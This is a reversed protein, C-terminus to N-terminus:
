KVIMISKNLMIFIRGRYIGHIGKSLSLISLEDNVWVSERFGDNKLFIYQNMAIEFTYTDYNLCHIHNKM